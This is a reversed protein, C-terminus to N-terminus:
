EQHEFIWLLYSYDYCVVLNRVDSATKRQLFKALYKLYFLNRSLFVFRRSLSPINKGTETCLFFKVTSAISAGFENEVANM